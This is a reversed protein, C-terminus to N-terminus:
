ANAFRCSFSFIACLCRSFRNDLEVSNHTCHVVIYLVHQQQQQQQQKANTYQWHCIACLLANWLVRHGSWIMDTKESMTGVMRFLHHCLSFQDDRNQFQTFLLLNLQLTIHFSCVYECVFVDVFLCLSAHIKLKNFHQFSPVCWWMSPIIHQFIHSYAHINIKNHM